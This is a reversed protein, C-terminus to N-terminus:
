DMQVGNVLGLKWEGRVTSSDQIIVTDGLAINRKQVHWTSRILLSPFYDRTMKRWFSNSIGEVFAFRNKISTFDAFPGGAIRSSARGLLLDNPCIYTGEDPNTPHRGIPRENLINAVEYVVTQM